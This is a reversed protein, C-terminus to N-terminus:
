SERSILVEVCEDSMEASSILTDPLVNWDRITQHFFSCKCADLSATPTQFAMSHQNICRRAISVLDVTPM